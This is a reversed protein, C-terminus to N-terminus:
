HSEFPTEWTIAAIRKVKVPFNMFNSQAPSTLHPLLESGKSSETRSHEM